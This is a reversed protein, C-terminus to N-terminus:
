PPAPAPSPWAPGRQATLSGPVAPLTGTLGAESSADDPAPAGVPLLDRQDAEHEPLAAKPRGLLGAAAAKDSDLTAGHPAAGAAVLGALGAPFGFTDSATNSAVSHDEVNTPASRSVLLDSPRPALVPDAAAARPARADDYLRVLADQACSPPFPERLRRACDAVLLRPRQSAPLEGRGRRPRLVAGRSRRPAAGGAAERGRQGDAGGRARRLAGPGRHAPRAAAGARQAAPGPAAERDGAGDHAHGGRRWPPGGGCDGARCLQLCGAVLDQVDRAAGSRSTSGASEPLADSVEDLQKQLLEVERKLNPDENGKDSDRPGQAPQVSPRSSTFRGTRLSLLSAPALRVLEMLARQVPRLRKASTAVVSQLTTMRRGSAACLRWHAFLHPRRAGSRGWMGLALRSAVLRARGCRALEQRVHEVSAAAAPSGLLYTMGGRCAGAEVLRAREEDTLAARARTSVLVTGPAAAELLFAADAPLQGTLQMVPHSTGVVVGQAFVVGVLDPSKLLPRAQSLLLLPFSPAALPLRRAAAPDLLQRLLPLLSAPPSVQAPLMHLAAALRLRLGDPLVRIKDDAAALLARAIRLARSAQDAEGKIGACALACALLGGDASRCAASRVAGPRLSCSARLPEAHPRRGQADGAVITIHAQTPEDVCYAGEERLAEDLHVHLHALAAAVDSAACQDLLEPLNTVRVALETLQKYVQLSSACATFWPAHM